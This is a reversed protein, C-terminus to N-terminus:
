SLLRLALVSEPNDEAWWAHNLCWHQDTCWSVMVHLFPNIRETHVLNISHLGSGAEEFLLEFSCTDLHGSGRDEQSLTEIGRKLASCNRPGHTCAGAVQPCKTLYLALHPIWVQGHWSDTLLHFVFLHLFLVLESSHPSSSSSSNLTTWNTIFSQLIPLPISLTVSFYKLFCLHNTYSYGNLEIHGSYWGHMYGIALRILNIM